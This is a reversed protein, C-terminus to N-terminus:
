ARRRLYIACNWTALERVLPVRVVFHLRPWYRPEVADVVVGPRRRLDRLTPGIHLPFLEEGPRNKRPPGHSREYLRLGLRPGLYHYPSIDHGGWPSCWNTFSVYAWGGPRLVREIEDLVLWPDPTHELMNSSLVGDVSADALPLDMADGLLAGEPPDGALELQARSNDLPIVHAGAARLAKTYFGPGCGVDLVTQGSLSGYRRELRGVVDRALVAYFPAPDERESRWLRWLTLAHASM